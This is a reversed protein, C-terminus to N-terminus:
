DCSYSFEWITLNDFTITGFLNNSDYLYTIATGVNDGERKVSVVPNKSLFIVKNIGAFFQSIGPSGYLDFFIFDKFQDSFRNLKALDYTISYKTAGLYYETINEGSWTFSIEGLDEQMAGTYKLGTLRTGSYSFDIKGDYRLEGNYFYYSKQEAIQGSSNVTYDSTYKVQADGLDFYEKKILNNSSNYTFVVRDTTSNFEKLNDNLYTTQYVKPTSNNFSASVIKCTKNDSPNSSEKKCGSTTFVILCLAIFVKKM